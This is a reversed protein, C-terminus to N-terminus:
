ASPFSLRASLQADGTSHQATFPAASLPHKRRMADTGLLYRDWVSKLCGQLAACSSAPLCFQCVWVLVQKSFIVLEAGKQLVGALYVMATFLVTDMSLVCLVSRHSHQSPKGARLVCTPDPLVLAM